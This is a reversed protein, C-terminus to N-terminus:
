ELIEIGPFGGNCGMSTTRKLLRNGDANTYSYWCECIHCSVRFSSLIQWGGLSASGEWEVGLVCFGHTFEATCGSGCSVQADCGATTAAAAVTASGATVDPAAGLAPVVGMLVASWAALLLTAARKKRRMKM